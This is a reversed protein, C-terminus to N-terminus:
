KKKPPATEEAAISIFYAEVRKKWRLPIESSWLQSINDRSNPPLTAWFNRTESQPLPKNKWSVEGQEPLKSGDPTRAKGALYLLALDRKTKNSPNNKQEVVEVERILKQMQELIEKGQIEVTTDHRDERLLSAMEEMKDSIEILESQLTKEEKEVYVEQGHCFTCFIILLICYFTTKM